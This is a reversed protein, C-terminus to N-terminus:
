EADRSVGNRVIQALPAEVAEEVMAIVNEPPTGAQVAHSPACIYGGGAGFIKKLRRVELRVQEPELHPLVQQVSVGGQFSLRNGFRGKLKEPAMDQCEVQVAELCDVGAEILDDLLDYVSGDSHHITYRVHQHALAYLRRHYPMIMERYTARSIMPGRQTGLDDAGYVADFGDPVVAFARRMQTEFFTTIRDLAAHVVEPALVLSEMLQELGMLWSLIELPNGIWLIRAFHHDPDAQQVQGALDAYRFHEPNPWAHAAIDDVTAATALPKYDFEDYHGAGYSVAKVTWGWFSTKAPLSPGAYAADFRRVDSTLCYLQQYDLGWPKLYDDLAARTAPQPGFSWSFAPRDAPQHALNLLVRQRPLLALHNHM